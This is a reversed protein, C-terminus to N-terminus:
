KSFNFLIMVPMSSNGNVNVLGIQFNSREAVNVLGIQPGIDRMLVNVLSLQFGDVQKAINALLSVQGGKLEQSVNVVGLQSGNVEKSTNAGGIQWGIFKDSDNVLSVQVGSSKGGNVCTILSTQLGYNANSANCVGASIQAGDFSSVDSAFLSLDLGRVPSTGSFPLGLRLGNVGVRKTYGPVDFWFGVEFPTWSEVKQSEKFTPENLHNAQAVDQPATIPAVVPAPTVAPTAAVKEAAPASVSLTASDAFTQLSVFGIAMLCALSSKKFM